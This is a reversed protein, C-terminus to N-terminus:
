KKKSKKKAIDALIPKVCGAKSKKGCTVGRKGCIGRLIEKDMHMLKDRTYEIVVEVKSKNIDNATSNKHKEKKDYCSVCLAEMEIDTEAKCM